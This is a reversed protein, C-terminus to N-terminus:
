FEVNYKATMEARVKQRSGNAENLIQVAQESVVAKQELGAQRRRRNYEKYNERDNRGQDWHYNGNGDYYSGGYNPNYAGAVRAQIQTQGAAGTGSLQKLKSSVFTGWEVLAPDVSLIPLKDIRKSAQFWWTATERVSTGTKLSDITLSVSKFYRQSATAPDAPAAPAASASETAEPAAAAVAAPVPSQVVGILQRFGADSLKGSGRVESGATTFTWQDVDELRMGAADLVSVLLPKAVGDLLAASQGLHITVTGSIGQDVAIQLTLGKLTSLAKAMADLDKGALEKLESDALFQRIRPLGFADGLDLAMMVHADERLGALADKIYESTVAGPPQRVWRAITAREGPTCVALVDPEIPVFYANIPSVVADKDWVRDFHGGEGQCLDKLAPMKKMGMLTVEWNTEAKSPVFEAGMLLKDVGPPIIQPRKAWNEANMERWKQQKAYPSDLVKEVNVAVVADTAAPLRKSMDRFTAAASARFPALGAAAAALVLAAAAVIRRARVLPVVDPGSPRRMRTM